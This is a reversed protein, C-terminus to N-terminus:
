NPVVYLASSLAFAQGPTVETPPNSLNFYWFMLNDAGLGACEFTDLLGNNDIDRSPPCEPTDRVLDQVGGSRETTHRLGHWHGMEHSTTVWLAHWEINGQVRHADVSLTVGAKREIAPTGPIGMARGLLTGATDASLIERVFFLSVGDPVLPASASATVPAAALNALEDESIVTLSADDISGVGVGTVTIGASAYISELVSSAEGFAQANSSDIGSDAVVILNIAIHGANSREGRRILIQPSPPTPSPDGALKMTHRGPVLPVDPSKPLILEPTEVRILGDLSSADVIEGLGSAVYSSEFVDVETDGYVVMSVADNPVCVSFPNSEMANFGAVMTSSVLSVGDIPIATIGPGSLAGLDIDGPQCAEVPGSFYGGAGNGGAGGGGSSGGSSCASSAIAVVLSAVLRPVTL